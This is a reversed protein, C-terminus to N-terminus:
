SADIRYTRHGWLVALALLPSAVTGVVGVVFLSTGVTWHFLTVFLGIVIIGVSSFAILLILSVPEM